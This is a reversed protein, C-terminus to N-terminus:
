TFFLSIFYRAKEAKLKAKIIREALEIKAVAVTSSGGAGALIDALQSLLRIPITCDAQVTRCTTFMETKITSNNTIIQNIKLTVLYKAARPSSVLSISDLSAMRLDMIAIAM